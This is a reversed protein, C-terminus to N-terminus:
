YRSQWHAFFQSLYPGVEVGPSSGRFLTQATLQGNKDVKRPRGPQQRGIQQKLYSLQNLREASQQVNAKAKGAEFQNFPVDRLVALEYVEAMELVLEPNVQNNSDLLPPAPPMTVAQADPGQLDYVVGATPAEWQRFDKTLDPNTEPEVVNTQPNVKYKAGHRVRDSFADVFGDDIARRFEVFDQPEQLLGTEPNHPLGKTFSMLYRENAYRQEDGNAKHPPHQRNKAAEAAEVRVNFAQQQRNAM